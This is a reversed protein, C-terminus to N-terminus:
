SKGGVFRSIRSQKEKERLESEHTLKELTAAVAPSQSSLRRLFDMAYGKMNELDFWTNLDDIFKIADKTSLVWIGSYDFIHATTQLMFMKKKQDVELCEPEVLMYDFKGLFFAKAWAGFGFKRWGILVYSQVRIEKEKQKMATVIKEFEILDDSVEKQEAILDKVFEKMKEAEKAKIIIEEKTIYIPEIKILKGIRVGLGRYITGKSKIGLTKLRKKIIKETVQQRLKAGFFFQEEPKKEKGKYIKVILLVILLSIAVWVYPGTFIQSIIDPPAVEGAM